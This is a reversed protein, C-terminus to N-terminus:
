KKLEGSIPLVPINSYFDNECCFLRKPNLKEEAGQTKQKRLSAGILSTVIFTVEQGQHLDATHCVFIVQEVDAEWDIFTFLDIHSNSFNFVDLNNYTFWMMSFKCHSSKKGSDATCCPAFWSCLMKLVDQRLWYSLLWNRFFINSLDRELM